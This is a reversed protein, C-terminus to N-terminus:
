FSKAAKNRRILTKKCSLYSLEIIAKFLSFFHKTRIKYIYEEIYRDYIKDYAGLENSAEKQGIQILTMDQSNGVSKTNSAVEDIGINGVMNINPLICLSGKLLMNFALISDWGVKGIKHKYRIAGAGFFMLSKAYSPRKISSKITKSIITFSSEIRSIILWNDKSTMWGNSLPYSSAALSNSQTAELNMESVESTISRGSVLAIQNGLRDVNDNFFSITFQNIISDDELIVVLDRSQLVWNVAISVASQPGINSPSHFINIKRQLAFSAVVQKVRFNLGLKDEDANDIFVFLDNKSDLLVKLLHEINTPRCYGVILIAPIM